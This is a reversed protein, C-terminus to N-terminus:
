ARVSPSTTPFNPAGICQLEDLLIQIHIRLDSENASFASMSCPRPEMELILGGLTSPNLFAASFMEPPLGTFPYESPCIVQKNAGQWVLYHIIFSTIARRDSTRMFLPVARRTMEFARRNQIHKLFERKVTYM